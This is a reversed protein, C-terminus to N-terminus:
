GCFPFDTRPKPARLRELDRLADDREKLAADYPVRASKLAAKARELRETAEAIGPKETM